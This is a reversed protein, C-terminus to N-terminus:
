SAVARILSGTYPHAPDIQWSRFQTFSSWASSARVFASSTLVWVCCALRMAIMELGGMVSGASKGKKMFSSLWVKMSSHSHVNRDHILWLVGFLSNTSRHSIELLSSISQLGRRWILLFDEGRSTSTPFSDFWTFERKKIITQKRTRCWALKNIKKNTM